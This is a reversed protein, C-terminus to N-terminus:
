PWVGPCKHDLETIRVTQSGGAKAPGGGECGAGAVGRPAKSKTESVWKGLWEQDSLPHLLPERHEYKQSPALLRFLSWKLTMGTM